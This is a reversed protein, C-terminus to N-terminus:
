PSGRMSYRLQTRYNTYHVYSLNHMWVVVTQGNPTGPVVYPRVNDSTSNRTVPLFSWTAGGDGTTYELIEFVGKVPTSVFVRSPKAPDISLGGSYHPERERQGEPTKPFWSGASTIEHDVWQSGDWRAYHYRHDQETPLRTYGIVPRGDADEVISWIWARGATAGDYVRDCQAPELPLQDFDAIKSGDAKWFAGREYRVFYVSNRAENRPHGDTFLIDIRGKGDSWYKAYPRNGSDRGRESILTRQAEWTQGGDRSVTVTPKFDSGRFFFWLAHAEASLIFPNNYTIGRPGKAPDLLGIARSAGWDGFDGARRTSAMFMDGKSHKSYFATLRGDPLIAFTPHDHDDKEFQPALTVVATEGGELPRVGVQISGDSSVWGAVLKGDHYIARPDSFWCWAGDEALIRGGHDHTTARAISVLVLCSFLLLRM